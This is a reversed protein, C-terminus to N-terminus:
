LVARRNLERLKKVLALMIQEQVQPRRAMLEGLDPSRLRLLETDELCIADASRPERDLVALEGFFDRERLVALQTSGDRIAIRGRLVVYLDEGPDGKHFVAENAGHNVTELIEAVMRLDDGSLDSFLPVSRLFRMREFLPILPSESAYVDPARAELRAGYAIMACGRIHPDRLALISGLPDDLDAHNVLGLSEAAAIRERMTLKDFLPVVKKALKPSLTMELLEAVQADRQAHGRRLGAEVVRVLRRSELLSLLQLIRQRSTGVRLEIEHELFALAEKEPKDDDRDLAARITYYRFSSEIERELLPEVISRPLPRHRGGRVMNTLARTARERVGVDAHSLLRSIPAEDSEFSSLMVSSPAMASPPADESSAASRSSDGGVSVVNLADDWDTLTSLAIPATRPDDFLPAVAPLLSRVRQTTVVRLTALRTSLDEHALLARLTSEIEPNRTAKRELSALAVERMTADESTLLPLLATGNSVSARDRQELLAIQCHARVQRDTDATGSELAEHSAHDVAHLRRLARVAARRVESIRDDHLMKAITPATEVAGLRALGEITLARVTPSPHELGVLLSRAASPSGSGSLLEAALVARDEDPLRLEGELAHCAESDLPPRDVTPDALDLNRGDIARRLAQLYAKRVGILIITAMAATGLLTAIALWRLDFGAPLATLVVAAIAYGAPALVGRVLARAQARQVVPLPTQTQEMANSWLSLKLIRDSSRLLVVTALGPIVLAAIAAFVTVVPTVALAQAAGLRSLVRGSLALLIALSLLSTIGYYNGFFSAIGTPSGFKDRAASMIQFDMLQETVLALVSLAVALRMLPVRAVFGLGRRWGDVLGVSKSGTAFRGALDRSAISRVLALTLLLIVPAAVLLGKAGILKVIMPVLLGGLTWAASAGVGAIPLLRKASRPDIAESVVSWVQILLLGCTAEIVVYIVFPIATSSVLMLARLALIATAAATLTISALRVPGLRAAASVSMASFSALTIASAAFAWPITSRGYASLFIGNQAAKLLVLAGSMTFVLLLLRLARGGQGEAIGLVRALGGLMGERL